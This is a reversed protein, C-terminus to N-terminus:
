NELVQQARALDTKPITFTIDTAKGDSSTRVIMDVNISPRRWRGFLAAAVGTAVNAVTVKAGGPRLRHSVISQELGKAMIEEEDVVLTGPLDSGPPM